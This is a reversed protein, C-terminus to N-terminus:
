SNRLVINTPFSSVLLLSQYEINLFSKIAISKIVNKKGKKKQKLGVILGDFTYMLNTTCHFISIYQNLLDYQPISINQNGNSIPKAHKWWSGLHEGDEEDGDM